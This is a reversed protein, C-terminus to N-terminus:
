ERCGWDYLQHAADPAALDQYLGIARVNYQQSIQSPLTDLLEQQNSVMVLDHGRQALQRCYELGMGSTAGTVLAQM